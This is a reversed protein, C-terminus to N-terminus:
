FYQAMLDKVEQLKIPKSMLNQFGSAYYLDKDEQFVNATLAIIPCTAERNLLEKLTEIGGMRPMNIDLIILDFDNPHSDYVELAELGDEAVEVDLGLKNFMKQFLKRNILKDEALLVRGVFSAEVKKQIHTLEEKPEKLLVEKSCLPSLSFTFKSGKGKRSVVDLKGNM